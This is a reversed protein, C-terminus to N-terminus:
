DQSSFKSCSKESQKMGKTRIARSQNYKKKTNRTAQIVFHGILCILSLLIKLRILNKIWKYKRFLLFRDISFKLTTKMTLIHKRALVLISWLYHIEHSLFHYMWSQIDSFRFIWFLPCFVLNKKIRETVENLRLLPLVKPVQIGDRCGHYVIDVSNRGGGNEYLILSIPLHRLSFLPM